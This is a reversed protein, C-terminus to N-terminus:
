QCKPTGSRRRRNRRPGPVANIRRGTREPKSEGSIMMMIMNVSRVHMSM